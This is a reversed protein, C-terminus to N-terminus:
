FTYKVRPFIALSTISTGVIFRGVVDAGISFHDM